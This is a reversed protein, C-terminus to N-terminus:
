STSNESPYNKSLFEDIIIVDRLDQPRRTLVKLERLDQLSLVPIHINDLTSIKARGFCANFEFNRHVVTLFDIPGEISFVLADSNPNGLFAYNEERYDMAKLVQMLAQLNGSDPSIWVDSDVTNRILGHFNLALGGIVMYQLNLQAALQAFRWFETNSVALRGEM